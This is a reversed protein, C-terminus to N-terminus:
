LGCSQLTPCSQASESVSQSPQDYSEKWPSVEETWGEKDEEQAYTGEPCSGPETEKQIKQNAKGSEQRQGRWEGLRRDERAPRAWRPCQFCFWTGDLEKNTKENQATDGPSAFHRCRPLEGHANTPHISPHRWSLQSGVDWRRNLNVPSLRNTTEKGERWSGRIAKHQRHVRGLVRLETGRPNQMSRRQGRTATRTLRAEKGSDGDERSVHKVGQASVKWWHRRLVGGAPATVLDQESTENGADQRAWRWISLYGPNCQKREKTM